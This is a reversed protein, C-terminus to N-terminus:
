LVSIPLVDRYTEYLWLHPETHDLAINGGQLWQSRSYTQKTSTGGGHHTCYVGAMYIKKNHRAAECALWLDLCHHTLYRTPWGGIKDLFSHRVAMVFADLVAVPALGTWRSGHVDWDTQNSKYGRRAMNQLQYPYKYLDPHGLGTAGGLGVAVIDDFEFAKDFYDLWNTDHITVDDHAYITIDVKDRAWLRHEEYVGCPSWANRTNDHIDVYQIRDTQLFASFGPGECRPVCLSYKM